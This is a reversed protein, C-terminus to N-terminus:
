RDSEFYPHLELLGIFLQQGEPGGPADPDRWDSITLDARTDRARFLVRHYNHRFPNERAQIGYQPYNGFLTANMQFSGEPTDVRFADARRLQEILDAKFCLRSYPYRVIPKRVHDFGESM